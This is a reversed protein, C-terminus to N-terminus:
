ASLRVIRTWHTCLSRMGQTSHRAATVKTVIAVSAVPAVTVIIMSLSERMETEVFPQLFV